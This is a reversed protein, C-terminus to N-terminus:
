AGGESRPAAGGAPAGLLDALERRALAAAGGAATSRLAQLVREAEADDALQHCARALTVGALLTETPRALAQAAGQAEEARARAERARGRELDLRAARTLTYALRLKADAARLEGLASALDSEAGPEGLACACLALLARAFPAESGERLKNGLAGLEAALRRAEAWDRQEQRLVVLHELAQFEGMADGARRAELRAQEFLEAAEDLRGRHQRLMGQADAIASPRLGARSSRASAELALAEARPLDRELLVLCRAAEAMAVVQAREDGARSVVEARMMHRQADSLDGEEWRMYSLMHFGLRAHETDGQGLAREALAELEDAVAGPDAPRRAQLEVQLLELLLGTREPEGVDAAHRRGRRAVAWAEANAFQRLYLRGASVCARAAVASEGALAAHHALDSAVTEIAEARGLREAVRRHMLRRRPLSLESYVARRVVEHTFEYGGRGDGGGDRARLLAHRELLELALLLRDLDVAMLEGLRAADFGRGLVAGWRLADGAESPLREVRHRILETLSVPLGDGRGRASRALELALFPNGESEAFVAEADIGPTAARLLERTEELGLPALPVEALLGLEALGRLTRRATENDHLEGARASLAVLLPRHLSMRAVYHLLEASAADLWHVDDLTLVVPPTSAAREALLEVVAAFLRDRSRPAGDERSLEPLLAQLDVALAAGVAGPPLQRLADIWPGFPRGSEAEFARGALVTGGRARAATHLEGLLSSKGLGPEGTLLLARASRHGACEELAQVLRHREAARGVLRPAAPAPPPAAPEAERRPAVARAERTGRWAAELEGSGPRGLEKLLRGAAELQQEAERRRGTAALVRVLGAQAPEDLPDIAALARAHPLAAEPDGELRGVLTRLLVAHLKRAEEREAVCWAQVDLFDGLDLGELLEGRFESALSRLEDLPAGELGATCRRRLALIDIWAGEAEFAVSDRPARIRPRGPEDVVARLRSLSWRLAGRPDDAVDWLLGCLRDRRHPRGTLALYALLGRTKKSPPLEVRRGDRLVEM